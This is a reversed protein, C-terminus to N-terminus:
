SSDADRTTLRRDHWFTWLAFLTAANNAALWLESSVPVAAAGFTALLGVAAPLFFARSILVSAVASSFTMLLLNGAVVFPV